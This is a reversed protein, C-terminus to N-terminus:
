VANKNRLRNFHSGSNSSLAEFTGSEVLRGQDLVFIRDFKALNELRHSIMLLTKDATLSFLSKMLQEDTEPDVNSNAEDLCIVERDLLFVRLFNVIQKEGNSLNSGGNAVEFGLNVDGSFDSSRRPTLKPSSLLHPPIKDHSLTKKRRPQDAVGRISLETTRFLKAITKEPVVRDPDLNERLTGKFLFGHQPIVSMAHRLEGLSLARVDRQRVFINGDEIEYMRFLVSLISSKGSGTRGCFAVKEGKRISFSIDKLAFRRDPADRAQYSLSVNHFSIIEDPSPQVPLAVASPNPVESYDEVRNDLYQGVREVSIFSQETAAVQQVIDVFIQSSNLCYAIAMAVVTYDFPLNYFVIACCTLAVAIVIANSVLLLRLNCWILVADNVYQCGMKTKLLDVFTNIFNWERKFARITKVGSQSEAVHSIFSSNATATLRRFERGASRYSGQIHFVVLIGFFYIALMWPMLIALSVLFGLGSGVFAILISMNCPIQDDIALTDESYRNIIRGVPTSDFFSMKSFLITRNLAAFIRQGGKLNASFYAIM